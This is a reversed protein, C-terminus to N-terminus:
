TQCPRHPANCAGPKRYQRLNILVFRFCSLSIHSLYTCIGDSSLAWLSTLLKFTWYFQKNLRGDRQQTCPQITYVSCSSTYSGILTWCQPLDSSSTPDISLCPYPDLPYLRGSATVRQNLVSCHLSSASRLPTHVLVLLSRHIFDRLLQLEKTAHLSSALTEHL